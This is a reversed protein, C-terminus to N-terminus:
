GIKKTAVVRSYVGMAGLFTFVVPPIDPLTWGMQPAMNLKVVEYTGIIVTVVGTWVGKSRYWKMKDMPGEELKITKAANKVVLKLVWDKIKGM